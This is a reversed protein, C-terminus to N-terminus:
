FVVTYFCIDKFYIQGERCEIFHDSYFIMRMNLFSVKIYEAGRCHDTDISTTLNKRFIPLVERANNSSYDLQYRDDLENATVLDFEGPIHEANVPQFDDIIEEEYFKLDPDFFKENLMDRSQLRLVPSYSLMKCILDLAELFFKDSREPHQFSSVITKNFRLCDFLQKKRFTRVEAFTLKRFDRYSAHSRKLNNMLVTYNEFQQDYYKSMLQQANPDNRYQDMSLIQSVMSKNPITKRDLNLFSESKLVVDSSSIGLKEMDKMIPYFFVLNKLEEETPFGMYKYLKKTMIMDKERENKGSMEQIEEKTLFPHRTETLLELYIIGLQWIDWKQDYYKTTYSNKLCNIENLKLSKLLTNKLFTEYDQFGEPPRYSNKGIEGPATLGRGHENVHGWHTGRDRTLFRSHGFDTIVVRLQGNESKVLVNDLSLDRHIIGNQHIFALGLALEYFIKRITNANRLFQPNNRGELDNKRLKRLDGPDYFETILQM